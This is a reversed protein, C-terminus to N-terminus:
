RGAMSTSWPFGRPTCGGILPIWTRSVTEEPGAAVVFRPQLAAAVAEVEVAGEKSFARPTRGM